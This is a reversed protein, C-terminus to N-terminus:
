AQIGRSSVSSLKQSKRSKSHNQVEGGHRDIEVADETKNHSQCISSSDAPHNQLSPRTEKGTHGREEMQTERSQMKGSKTENKAKEIGGLGMEQSTELGALASDLSVM